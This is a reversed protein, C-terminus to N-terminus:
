VTPRVQMIAIDRYHGAVVPGAAAAAALEREDAAGGRVVSYPYVGRTSSLGSSASVGLELQVCTGILLGRM